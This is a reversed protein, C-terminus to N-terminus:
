FGGVDWSGPRAHRGTARSHRRAALARSRRGAGVVARDRHVPVAARQAMAMGVLWQKLSRLSLRLSTAHTRLISMVSRITRYIAAISSTGSITIFSRM